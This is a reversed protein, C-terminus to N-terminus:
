RWDRVSTETASAAASNPTDSAWITLSRLTSHNQPSGPRPM